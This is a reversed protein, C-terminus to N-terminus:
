CNDILLNTVRLSLQNEYDIGEVPLKPKDDRNDEVGIIIWEGLTNAMAAITKAIKKPSSIDKKYDLNIGERNQKQCFNRVDNTTVETLKKGYINFELINM